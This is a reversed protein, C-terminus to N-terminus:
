ALWTLLAKQKRVNSLLMGNVVFHFGLFEDSSILIDDVSCSDENVYSEDLNM